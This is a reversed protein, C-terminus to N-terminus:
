KIEKFNSTQSFWKFNGRLSPQPRGSKMVWKKNPQILPTNIVPSPAPRRRRHLSPSFTGISQMTLACDRNWQSERWHNFATVWYPASQSRKDSVFCFLAARNVDNSPRPAHPPPCRLCRLLEKNRSYHILPPEWGPCQVATWVNGGEPDMVIMSRAITGNGNATM